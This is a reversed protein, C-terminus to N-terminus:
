QATENLICCKKTNSGASTTFSIQNITFPLKVLIEKKYGVIHKLVSFTM